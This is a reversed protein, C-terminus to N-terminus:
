KSENKIFNKIKLRTSFLRSKITGLPFDMIEALQEYSYGNYYGLFIQRSLENKELSMLMNELDFAILYADSSLSEPEFGRILGPERDFSDITTNGNDKRWNNIFMNNLVRCCWGLFLYPKYSNGEIKFKDKSQLIKLISESVLDERDEDRLGFRRSFNHLKPIVALLEKEFNFDNPTCM